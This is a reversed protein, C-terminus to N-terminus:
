AAEAYTASPAAKYFTSMMYEETKEYSEEMAQSARGKGKNSPGVVMGKAKPYSASFLADIVYEVCNSHDSWTKILSIAHDQDVDPVMAMIQKLCDELPPVSVQAATRSASSSSCQSANSQLIETAEEAIDEDEQHNIIAHVHKPRKATPEQVAGALEIGKPPAGHHLLEVDDNHGGDRDDLMEDVSRKNGMSSVGASPPAAAALTLANSPPQELLQELCAGARFEINEYGGHCDWARLLEQQTVARGTIDRAMQLLNPPPRVFDEDDDSDFADM